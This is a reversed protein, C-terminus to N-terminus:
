GESYTRWVRNPLPATACTRAAPVRILASTKKEEVIPKHMKLWEQGEKTTFFDMWVYHLKKGDSVQAGHKSGLPIHLIAFSTLHAKAETPPSQSTM